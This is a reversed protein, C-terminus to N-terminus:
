GLVFYSVEFDADNNGLNKIGDTSHNLARSAFSIMNVYFGNLLFFSDTAIPTGPYEVFAGNSLARLAFFIKPSYNSYAPAVPGYGTYTEVITPYILNNGGDYGVAQQQVGDNITLDGMFMPIQYIFSQSPITFTFKGSGIVSIGLISLLGDAGIVPLRRDETATSFKLTTSSVDTVGETSINVNNGNLNVDGRRNQPEGNLVYGGTLNVHGGIYIQGPDQVNSPDIDGGRIFVGGGTCFDSVNGTVGGGRIFIAGGGEGGSGIGGDVYINGSGDSVPSQGATIRVDGAEGTTNDGSYILVDGTSIVGADLDATYIEVDGSVGTSTAGTSIFVSGVVGSSTEGTTISIDGSSEGASAGDGTSLFIDGSIVSDSTTKTSLRIGSTYADLSVGDGGVGVQGYGYATLSVDGGWSASGQSGGNAKGGEITVAGAKAGSFGNSVMSGGRITIGGPIFSTDDDQGLIYVQKLGEGTYAGKAFPGITLDGTSKIQTESGSVIHTGNVYVRSPDTIESQFHVEGISIVGNVGTLSDSNFLSVGGESDSLLTTDQPTIVVGSRANLTIVKKLMDKTAM